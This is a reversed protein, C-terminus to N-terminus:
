PKIKTFYYTVASGVLGSVVPLASNFANNLADVKKGNWEMVVVCGYHGIILAFLLVILWFAVQGRHKEVDFPGKVRIPAGDQVRGGELVVGSEGEATKEQSLASQNM